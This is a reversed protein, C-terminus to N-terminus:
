HQCCARLFVVSSLIFCVFIDRVFIARCRWSWVKSAHSCLRWIRHHNFKHFRFINRRLIDLGRCVNGSHRHHGYCRSGATCCCASLVPQVAQKRTQMRQEATGLWHAGRNKSRIVDADVVHDTYWFFRLGHLVSSRVVNKSRFTWLRDLIILYDNNVFKFLSLPIPRSAHIGLSCSLLLVTLCGIQTFVWRRFANILAKFISGTVTSNFTERHSAYGTSRVPQFLCYATSVECHMYFSYRLCVTLNWKNIADLSSLIFSM